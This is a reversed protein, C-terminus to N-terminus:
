SEGGLKRLWATYRWSRSAVHAALEQEALAAREELDSVRDFLQQNSHQAEALAQDTKEFEERSQQLLGSLTAANNEMEQQKDAIINSLEAIRTELRANSNRADALQQDRTAVVQQLERNHEDLARLEQQRKDTIGEVAQQYEATQQYTAVLEKYNQELKLHDGTLEELAHDTMKYAGFQDLWMRTLQATEQQHENLLQELCEPSAQARALSVRRRFPELTNAAIFDHIAQDYGPHIERMIQDANHKREGSERAFSVAGEHYVFVDCAIVNNWGQESARLCFDCEEGYGQGFNETDFPGIHDLCERKIYMCFGVGTPIEARQNQNADAFLQDLAALSTGGPLANEQNPVPYSCITANNSFPTVTGIQSESYACRHLRHLWDGSVETDSNLLVIDATPSEGFGRNVTAVFGLNTNNHLLRISQNESLQQCYQVLERDPSDDNIVLIETNPTLKSSLVSELCRRTVAPDRYVPIVVSIPTKDNM